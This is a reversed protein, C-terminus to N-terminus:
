QYKPYNPRPNQLKESIKDADHKMSRIKKRKFRTNTSKSCKTIKDKLSDLRSKLNNIEEELSKAKKAIKSDRNRRHKLQRKTLGEQTQPTIEEQPTVQAMALMATSNQLLAILESKRLRSYGRLGREKTISKLEPMRLTNHDNEM